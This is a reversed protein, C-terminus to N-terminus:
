LGVGRRAASTLGRSCGRWCALGWESTNAPLDLCCVGSCPSSAPDGRAKAASCHRNDSSSARPASDRRCAHTRTSKSLLPFLFQTPNPSIGLCSAAGIERERERERETHTHTHEQPEPYPPQHPQIGPRLMIPNSSVLALLILFLSLVVRCKIRKNVSQLHVGEHHRQPGAVDAHWAEREQMPAAPRRQAADGM